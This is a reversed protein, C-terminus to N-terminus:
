LSRTVVVNSVAHLDTLSGTSSTFGILVSPALVLDTGSYLMQASNVRVIGDIKVANIKGATILVEVTHTVPTDGRLHIYSPMKVATKCRQAPLVPVNFTGKCVGVFKDSPDGSNKFTDFSVAVGPIPSAFGAFGMMGGKGGLSSPTAGASVDGFVLDLGDAGTGGGMTMTFKVSTIKSSPQAVPSFTSGALSPLVSTLEATCGPNSTTSGTQTWNTVCPDPLPPLAVTITVTATSTRSFVDSITYTFSDTGTFGLTPTYTFSGDAALTLGGSTPPTAVAATIGTGSDNSLVGTSATTVLPTGYATTGSDDTASPPPPLAAIVVDVSDTTASYTIGDGDAVELKFTATDPTAPANFTLNKAHRQADTLPITTGATQTWQYYIPGPTPCSGPASLYCLSPDVDTGSGALAVPANVYVNQDAPAVAVPQHNVDTGSTNRPFSRVQLQASSQGAAAPLHLSQNFTTGNVVTDCGVIGFSTAAPVPFTNDVITGLGTGQDYLSPTVTPTGVHPATTLTPVITTRCDLFSVAFKLTLPLTISVDGTQPNVSGAAGTGLTITITINGASNWVYTPVTTLTFNTMTGDAAVDANLGLPAKAQANAVAESNDAASSCQPDAPFDVLLDQYKSPDFPDADNNIGDSCEPPAVPRALPFTTGALNLFEGQTVFKWRGPNSVVTPGAASAPAVVALSLLSALVALVATMATLRRGPLLHKM